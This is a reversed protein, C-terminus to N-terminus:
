SECLLEFSGQVTGDFGPGAFTATGSARNGDIEVSDISTSDDGDGGATFRPGGIVGSGDPGLAITVGEMIGPTDPHEVATGSEDVRTLAARFGVGLYNSDCSGGDDLLAYRYTEQGVTIIAGPATLESGPSTADASVTDNAATTTEAPASTESEIRPTTTDAPEDATEGSGCGGITLAASLVLM